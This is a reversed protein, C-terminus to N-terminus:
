RWTCARCEPRTRRWRCPPGPHGAEGRPGRSRAGKPTRLVRSLAASAPRDGAAPRAFTRGLLDLQAANGGAAAQELAAAVFALMEHTSGAGVTILSPPAALTGLLIQAAATRGALLVGPSLITAAAGAGDRWWSEAARYGYPGYGRLESVWTHRVPAQELWAEVDDVGYAGVDKCLGGRKGSAWEARKQWDRM